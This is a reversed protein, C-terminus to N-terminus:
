LFNKIQSKIKIFDSQSIKSIKRILRKNSILKLQPLIFTYNSNKDHLNYFFNGEKTKSTLPIIWLM